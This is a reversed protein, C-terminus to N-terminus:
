NKLQDLDNKASQIEDISLTIATERNNRRHIMVAREALQLIDRVVWKSLTAILLSLQDKAKQDALQINNENLTNLFVQERQERSVINFLIGRAYNLEQLNDPINKGNRLTGILFFDTEQERQQDDQFLTLAASVAESNEEGDRLLDLDDVVIVTNTKLQKGLNRVCNLRHRIGDVDGLQKLQSVHLYHCISKTRYAVARATDTKGSGSAGLFFTSRFNPNKMYEPDQIHRIITHVDQPATDLIQELREPSCGYHQIAKERTLPVSPIPLKQFLLDKIRKLTRLPSTVALGFTQSDCDLLNTCKSKSKYYDLADVVFEWDGKELHDECDQIPNTSFDGENFRTSPHNRSFNDFSKTMPFITLINFLLISFIVKKNM